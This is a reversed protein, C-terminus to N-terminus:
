ADYQRLREVAAKLSTEDKCFCFRVFDNPANSNDGYFPSLPILAVGAEAVLRQCFDADSEKSHRYQSIDAILFYTGACPLVQWGIENLGTTLCQRGRDMDDALGDFYSQDKALGEAVALQLNPPTTFTLFQHSKAVASM